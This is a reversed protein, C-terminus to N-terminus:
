WQYVDRPAASDYTALDGAMVASRRTFYPHCLKDQNLVEKRSDVRVLRSRRPLKRRFPYFSIM